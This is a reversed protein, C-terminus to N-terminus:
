SRVNSHKATEKRVLNRLYAFSGVPPAAKVRTPGQPMSVVWHKLADWYDVDRGPKMKAKLTNNLQATPSWDQFEAKGLIRILGTCRRCIFFQPAWEPEDFGAWREHLWNLTLDDAETGRAKAGQTYVGHQEFMQMVSTLGGENQNQDKKSTTPDTQIQSNVRHFLDHRKWLQALGAIGGRDIGPIEHVEQGPVGIEDVAYANGHYDIAFFILVTPNRSGYDAGAGVKWMAVQELPLDDIIVRDKIENWYPICRTGSVSLPNIEYHQQWEISSYGGLQESTEHTFWELGKETQPDKDPDASYHVRIAALGSMSKFEAVGRMLGDPDVDAATSIEHGYDSPLRMTGVVWCRGGGALCPKAAAYSERWEEQLSAEDSVLWAPVKGEIQSAGQALAQCYSGNPLIICGFTFTRQDIPFRVTIEEGDPKTMLCIQLWDPLNVMIFSMRAKQPVTDYIMEAADKEKKSQFYCHSHPHFLMKWVTYACLIWSVMLQRSKAVFRMDPGHQLENALYVLYDKKPFLKVPTLPTHPDTTKVYKFLFYSFDDKCRAIERARVVELLKKRERESLAELRKRNSM